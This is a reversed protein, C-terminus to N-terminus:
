CTFAVGRDNAAGINDRFEVGFRINGAEYIHDGRFHTVTRREERSKALACAEVEDMKTQDVPNAQIADALDDYGSRRVMGPLNNRINDLTWGWPTGVTTKDMPLRINHNEPGYHYHPAQDFCDFRLIETDNGDIDGYVQVMLGQDPMIERRYSLTVDVPGVNIITDGKEM